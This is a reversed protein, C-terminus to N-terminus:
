GEGKSQPGKEQTPRDGPSLGPDIIQLRQQLAERLNPMPNSRKLFLLAMSTSVVVSDGCKSGGWWRGDDKQSPLVFGLGWRYWDRGGITKLDLLVATRELTWLYYFDVHAEPSRPNVVVGRDLNSGLAALGLSIARDEPKKGDGEGKELAPDWGRGLGLALLGVCTMSNTPSQIPRDFCYYGWGNRQQRSRFRFEVRAVSSTLPLDYKRATWLALIAFQTNSNDGEGAERFVKNGVKRLEQLASPPLTDRDVVRKAALAEAKSLSELFKKEQAPTLIPCDYTWGGRATQGAALRTSLTRLLPLDQKEGLRDLFLIALSIEYTKRTTPASSRIFRAARQISDDTPKVGCELLALAPLATLGVPMNRAVPCDEVWPGVKSQTLQLFRVGKDIAQNVQEQERENLRVLGAPPIPVADKPGPEGGGGQAPVLLQTALALMGLLYWPTTM